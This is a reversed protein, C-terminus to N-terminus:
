ATLTKRRKLAFVAGIFGTGLLLLSSPEPTQAVSVFEQPKGNTWGTQDATPTYVDYKSYFGSNILLADQAKTFGTNVLQQSAPTFGVHGSVDAPDFVDWVAYQVDSNSAKGLQSFIWVDARYNISKQSADLPTAMTNVNWTEGVSIERNFNLCMLPTLTSSGNVSFNYPYVYVGGVAQGGVSALSLTDAYIPLSTVLALATLCVLVASKIKM